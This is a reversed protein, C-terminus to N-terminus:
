WNWKAQLYFPRMWKVSSRLTCFEFSHKNHLSQWMHTYKKHVIHNKNHFLSTTTMKVRSIFNFIQFKFDEAWNFINRLYLLQAKGSSSFICSRFILHQRMQITIWQVNSGRLVSYYCSWCFKPIWPSFNRSCYQQNPKFLLIIVHNWINAMWRNFPKKLMLRSEKSRQWRKTPRSVNTLIHISQHCM